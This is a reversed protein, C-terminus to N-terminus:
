GMDIAGALFITVIKEYTGKLSKIHSQYDNPAKVDIIKM